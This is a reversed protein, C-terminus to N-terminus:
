HASTRFRLSLNSNVAIGLTGDTTSHSCPKNTLQVRANKPVPVKVILPM